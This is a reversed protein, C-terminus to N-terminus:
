RRTLAPEPESPARPADEAGASQVAQVFVDELRTRLPKVEVVHGQSTYVDAILNQLKHDGACRVIMVNDKAFLETGGYDGAQLRRRDVGAITVEVEATEGAYVEHLDMVRALRGGSLIGVRDCVAEVDPVIHSSMLITKGQRKLAVLLERLQKRGIPDLGSYPEDLLLLAPDNMLATAIGLRQRMGKSYYKIKIARKDSLGVTEILQDARERAARKPIRFLEALLALAEGANMHPYLGVDEGLYGIKARTERDAGDRGFISVRGADPKLLGLALKMTTSKGAGNHGLFGYVEGAEVSLDLGKLVPTRMGLFGARFSKHIGHLELIAMALKQASQNGM